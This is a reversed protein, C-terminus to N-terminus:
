DNRLIIEVRRNQARQAESNGAVRPERSGRGEMYIRGGEVGMKVLLEAVRQARERSLNLEETPRGVNATHGVVLVSRGPQSQLLRVISQLKPEQNPLLDARDAVFLLNEPILVIGRETQRISVEPDTPIPLVAPGPETSMAITSPTSPALEPSPIPGPTSSFAVPPSSASPNTPAATPTVSATPSPPLTSSPTQREREPVDASPTPNSGRPNTPTEPNPRFTEPPASAILRPITPIPPLPTADEMWILHFGEHRRTTGDIWTYDETIKLRMFFPKQTMMDLYLTMEHRGQINSLEADGWADQGRRYRLAYLGTVIIAPRSGWTGTGAERYEIFVPVRTSPRDRRPRVTWAGQGVWVSGPQIGEPPLTPYGEHFPYRPPPAGRTIGQLPYRFYVEQELFKEVNIRDRNTEEQILYDVVVEIGNPGTEQRIVGRGGGYMLGIYRNNERIRIDYRHTFRQFSDQPFLPFSLLVFLLANKM